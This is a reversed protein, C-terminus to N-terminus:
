MRSGNWAFVVRGLLNVKNDGNLVDVTKVTPNDSSIEYHGDIRQLSGHGIGADTAFRSGLKPEVGGNCETIRRWLYTKPDQNMTKYGYCFYNGNDTSM